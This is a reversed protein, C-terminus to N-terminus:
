GWQTILFTTLFVIVGVWLYEKLTKQFLREKFHEQAIGLLVYLLTTLFLSGAVVTVPWFSLFLVTEALILSLFFTYFFVKTTIKEELKISWLSQLILPFSAFLVLFFNLYCHLKLSFITDFLFFATILSVLFGVTQAARLLQITRIAAVAFINETLLLAYFGVGFLGAVAFRSFWREPLLFYFLGSAVTYFVPLILVTLWEIGNLDKRLAWASFLYALLSLGAIAQYRIELKVLQVAILGLSLFLSAVVFKQRKTM